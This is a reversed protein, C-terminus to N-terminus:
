TILALIEKESLVKGSSIIKGDVVLGPTSLIGSAAIEAMDTVKIIEAKLDATKVAKEANKFLKKCNSCGSGLIKITM